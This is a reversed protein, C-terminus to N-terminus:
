VFSRGSTWVMPVTRYAPVPTKGKVRTPADYLVEGQEPQLAGGNMVISCGAETRQILRREPSMRALSRLETGSMAYPVVSRGKITVCPM